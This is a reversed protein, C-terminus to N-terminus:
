RYYGEGGGEFACHSLFSFYIWLVVSVFLEKEYFSLSRSISTYSVNLTGGREM